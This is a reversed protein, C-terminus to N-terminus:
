FACDEPLPPTLELNAAFDPSLDAQTFGDRVSGKFAAGAYGGTNMHARVWVTSDAQIPVPGGSRTFPQQDVHSHLLIRRYLLHGDEDIVEWWDAYQKCGLDPSRIEVAFTYASPQGSSTVSLVDAHPATPPSTPTVMPSEKVIPTAVIPPIQATATPDSQLVACDALISGILLAYFALLFYRSYKIMAKNYSVFRLGAIAV